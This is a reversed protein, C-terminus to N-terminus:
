EVGEKNSANKTIRCFEQMLARLRMEDKIDQALKIEKYLSDRRIKLSREKLRLICDDIIREKDELPVDPEVTLECIIQSLDDYQSLYNILNSVLIKKGQSVLDFMISVIKSAREDQFDSPALFEMLQGIIEQEDLMLKLLLKETPNIDIRKRQVQELKAPYSYDKIKKLELILIGEKIDLEESLKKIYDSRLISNQIKKITVLMEHCIKLKGEIDKPDYRLRLINLKYEFLRQSARILDKFSEITYRRVYLDPDFGPPLAVVKVRMDEELFIDLSRLVAIQGADDADYVMVVNHTYRKIAKAQEITLATGLSSVINHLGEQYPLICDLYGEVIIVSDAKIIAEKAFNLGYLHRGKVYIPSQPSNIYKALADDKNQHAEPLIRAGFGLIRSKVDFIPFIIRNRFRDFYGGADKPIILGGKELLSLSYNRQRLFDILASWRDPAFGLRFLELTTQKINRKTLYDRVRAGSASNLMKQYFSCALENTKYFILNSSAKKFNEKEPLKVGAKKALIEVAEPFELHEYRMLFSFANGGVGCGFCHYIQRQPSVMFSPTKEQHFPCHAKFNRGARKLPIYGSVVEVIDSRSLVEDLINEPIHSM